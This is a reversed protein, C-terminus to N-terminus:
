KKLLMSPVPMCTGTMGGGEPLHDSEMVGLLAMSLADQCQKMTPFWEEGVVISKVFNGSKYYSAVPIYIPPIKLSQSEQAKVCM